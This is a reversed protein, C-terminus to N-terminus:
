PEEPWAMDGDLPPFADVDEEVTDEHTVIDPAPMDGLLPPFEDEVDETVYTDPAQTDPPRAVGGLGWDEEVYTDLPQVSDPAPAGGQINWDPDYVDDPAYVDDVTDPPPAIGATTWEDSELVDAAADGQLIPEPAGMNCRALGLVSVGLLGKAVVGLFRRRDKTVEDASPYSPAPKSNAKKRKLPLDSM